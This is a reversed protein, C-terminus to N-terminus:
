GRVRLYYDPVIKFFAQFSKKKEKEGKRKPQRWTLAIFSSLFWPPPKTYIQTPPLSSLFFFLKRFIVVCFSFFFGKQIFEWIKIERPLFEIILNKNFNYFFTTSPLKDISFSALKIPLMNKKILTLCLFLLGGRM